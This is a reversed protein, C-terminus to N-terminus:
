CDGSAVSAGAEGVVAYRKLASQWQRLRYMWQRKSISRDVPDPTLPEDAERDSKPIHSLYLGYEAFMKSNAIDRSCRQARREWDEETAEPEESQAGATSSTESNASTTTTSNSSWAWPSWAGKSTKSPVGKNSGESQVEFCTETSAPSTGSWGLSSQRVWMEKRWTNRRSDSVALPLPRQATRQRRRSPNGVERFVVALCTMTQTPIFPPAEINPRWLCTAAIDEELRFESCALSEESSRSGRSVKPADPSFTTAESDLDTDSDDDDYMDAWLTAAVAM